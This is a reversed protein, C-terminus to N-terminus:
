CQALAEDAHSERPLFAHLWGSGKAELLAGSAALLYVARQAEDQLSAIVALRELYYAASTEDGAEAALSLGESLYAAAGALDGQAQSSVGLDYLSFLITVRDQARRAASLTQTFLEAAAQNDGQSIRIQGLFNYVYAANLEHQVRDYGTLEYNDLERLLAQSEDLMSAAAGDQHRLALLHGLVGATLATRVKDGAQRFLPLSREFFSQAGDQDGDTFCTFGGAALALAREYPALRASKTLVNHTLRTLDDAHGQLYWFRWTAWVLHVATDLHDQEVLWSMMAVLNGHERELRRLWTLQGPGRLEAEDPEALAAFYAAHRDHADRWEDESAHLREQAFVRITGLLRFRPEGDCTQGTVLSNDVLSGLTDIM